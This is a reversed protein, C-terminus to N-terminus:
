FIEVDHEREEAVLARPFLEPLCGSPFSTSFNRLHSSLFTLDWFPRDASPIDEAKFQAEAGTLSREAFDIQESRLIRLKTKADEYSRMQTTKGYKRM